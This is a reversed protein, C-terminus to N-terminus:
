KEEVNPLLMSCALAIACVITMIIFAYNLGYADSVYGLVPCLAAGISVALGLIICSAFGTHNPLYKQGLVVMPSYSLSEGCTMFILMILAIVFHSTNTFIFIAPLFICFSLRVMKRHGFCDAIGGGLVTISGIGYFVSLIMSAFSNSKSFQQIFYFALFTSIGNSLISRSFVVGCLKIFGSWDDKQESKVEEKKKVELVDLNEFDKNFFSCVIGFVIGPILFLITGKMGFLNMLFATYVPGLTFGVKGGFSFISMGKGKANKSSVSNFLKAAQPHFMAVGIGSMIVVIWLGFFNSIFGTVAMGGSALLVGLTMYLLKNKKDSLMGIFPQVFAGFVNSVTVLMAATTYDYHYTAILFPLVASLISQNIDSCLHGLSLVYKYPSIWM